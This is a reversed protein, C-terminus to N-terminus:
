DTQEHELRRLDETRNINQFFRDPFGAVTCVAQEPCALRLRREGSELLATIGPRLSRHYLAALPQPRESPDLAQVSLCGRQRQAALQRWYGETLAPQDVGAFAVWECSAVKLALELGALPGEGPREDPWTTWDPLVYRGPPAILIRESAFGLSEAAHALLPRGKWLAAAKDSGFRSSRGAATIVATLPTHKM